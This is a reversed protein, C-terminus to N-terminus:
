SPRTATPTRLFELVLVNFEHAREIMALHGTEPLVEVRAGAIAAGFAQADRVPTIRDAAGWVILTPAAVAPLRASITHGTVARLAASFGPKGTGRALEAILPLPVSGPACFWLSLLRRRARPRSTLRMGRRVVRRSWFSLLWDASQLMMVGRANRLSEVSIGAADVLVLREVLQPKRLALEAAIQGGMSNGIVRVREHGLDAVLRALWDAYFEITIQESPLESEGFGPLDPAIVTNERALAPINELWNQWNGGLGHVLLLPPGSGIVVLNVTSGGVQVQRRHRGWDIKM